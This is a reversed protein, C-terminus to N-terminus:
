RRYETGVEAASVNQNVDTCSVRCCQMHPHPKPTPNLPRTAPLTFPTHEHLTHPRSSIHLTAVSVLISASSTTPELQLYAPRLIQNHLSSQQYLKLVIPSQLTYCVSLLIFKDKGYILSKTEQFGHLALSSSLM